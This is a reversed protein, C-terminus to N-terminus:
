RDLERVEGAALDVVSVCGSIYKGARLVLAIDPGVPVDPLTVESSNGKAELAGDEWLSDLDSCAVGLSAVAEWDEVDRVGAYAPTIVLTAFGETSVSVTRTAFLDEGLSARVVFVAPSSPAHIQNKAVGYEDTVVNAAELFGDFATDSANAVLSFSVSHFGAPKVELSIEGLDGPSLLLTDSPVFELSEAGPTPAAGGVGHSPPAEDSCALACWALALGFVARGLGYPRPSFRLFRALSAM